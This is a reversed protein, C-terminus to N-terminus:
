IRYFLRIERLFKFIYTVSIEPIAQQLNEADYYRQRVVAFDGCKIMIHEVTLDCDCALCKLVDENM